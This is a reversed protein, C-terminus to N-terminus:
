RGDAGPSARSAKGSDLTRLRAVVGIWFTCFVVDRPNSLQLDLLGFILLCGIIMITFLGLMRLDLAITKDRFIQGCYIVCASIMVWFAVFGEFGTRMWVWLIQNHPILDWWAYFNSIDAIPVAHIFHKGYGYGLPASKITAYQDENEADRYANSSADRADPQFQSKISRAPLAFSGSATKSDGSLVPRFAITFAIGVGVVLRRRQPLAQYAALFFVPMLVALAATGARRNTSLYGLAVLPLTMLMFRQLKPHTGSLLLTMLLLFFGDFLFAEEHSGVGQDPLPLGQLTVYQRFTYLAGKIALCIATMWLFHEIQRRDTVLNVAMLYVLGIYVQPRIEQLAIKFDGGTGLGM